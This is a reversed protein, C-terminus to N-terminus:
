RRAAARLRLTVESTSPGLQSLGFRIEGDVLAWRRGGLSSKAGTLAAPGPDGGVRFGLLNRLMNAQTQLTEYTASRAQLTGLGEVRANAQGLFRLGLVGVLVLLLAIVLFAVLLKTRVTAPTRAVARVLRNDMGLLGAWTRAM